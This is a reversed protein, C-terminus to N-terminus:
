VIDINQRSTRPELVDHNLYRVQENMPLVILFEGCNEGGNRDDNRDDFDLNQLKICGGVM